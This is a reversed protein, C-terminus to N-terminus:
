MMQQHLCCYNCIPLSKKELILSRTRLLIENNTWYEVISTNKINEVPLHTLMPCMSISGDPGIFINQWLVKCSTKLHYFGKVLNEKNFSKSFAPDIVVEIDNDKGAKKLKNIENKLEDLSNKEILLNESINWHNLEPSFTEGLLEETENNIEDVVLSIYSFSVKAIDFHKALDIIEKLHKYNQRMVTVHFQVTIKRNSDKGIISFFNNLNELLQEYNNKGSITEYVAGVGNISITLYDVGLDLLTKAKQENLLQGNTFVSTKLDNIKSTKLIDFLNKYLFPEGGFILVNEGGLSKFENIIKEYQPISLLSNRDYTKNIEPCRCSICSLNCDFTPDLVLNTPFKKTPLFIYKGAFPKFFSKVINKLSM